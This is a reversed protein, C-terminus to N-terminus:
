GAVRCCFTDASSALPKCEILKDKRPASPCSWANSGSLSADCADDLNEAATCGPIEVLDGAVSCGSVATFVSVATFALVLKFIKM